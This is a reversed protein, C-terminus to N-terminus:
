KPREPGFVDHADLKMVVALKRVMLLAINEPIAVATTFVTYGRSDGHGLSLRLMTRDSIMGAAWSDVYTAATDMWTDDCVEQPTGVNDDSEGASM